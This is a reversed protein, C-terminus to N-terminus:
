CFTSHDTILAKRVQEERLKREFERAEKLAKAEELAEDNAEIFNVLEGIFEDCEHLNKVLTTTRNDETFPFSLLAVTPSSSLGLYHAAEFGGPSTLDDVWM